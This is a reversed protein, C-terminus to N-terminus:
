SIPTKYRRPYLKQLLPKKKVEEQETTGSSFEREQETTDNTNDINDSM